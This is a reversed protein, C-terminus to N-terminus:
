GDTVPRHAPLPSSGPPASPSGAFQDRVAPSLASSFASQTITVAYAGEIGSGLSGNDFHFTVGGAKGPVTSAALTVQGSRWKPCTLLVTGQADSGLRTLLAQRVADCLLGDLKASDADPQILDSPLVPMENVKDWMLAATGHNPHSGGAFVDWTQLMSVLRETDATMAWSISKEYRAKPGKEAATHAQDTVAQRMFDGLERRGDGYLKEHLVPYVGLSRPLSLSVKAAPTSGDYAFPAAPPPPAAPPTAKHCAALLLTAALAAFIPKM